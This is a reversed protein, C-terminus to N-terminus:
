QISCHSIFSLIGIQSVRDTCYACMDNGGIFMTVMKWDNAIDVDPDAVMRDVINRAQRPM